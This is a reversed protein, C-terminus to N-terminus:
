TTAFTLDFTFERNGLSGACYVYGDTGVRFGYYANAGSHDFLVYYRNATPRMGSPLQAFFPTNQPIGIGGAYVHGKIRVVDTGELRAYADCDGASGVYTSEALYQWAGVGGGGPPGQEGVGGIVAWTGDETKIKAVTM